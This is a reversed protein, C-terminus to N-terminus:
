GAQEDQSNKLLEFSNKRYDIVGDSKLRSMEASLASREVSLYDALEQRNYPIDFSGGGKRRAQEALYSLLKGKITRKTLHELKASLMVNKRALIGLMNRILKSHFACSSSCSTVIRKYDAFLIGSEERAVVSVPIRGIGSCVVAEAFLGPPTIETIIDRDGWLGNKVLHLRGSAVVGIESVTDGEFYVTEGKAFTRVSAGLCALLAELDNGGIGTFLPSHALVSFYKRM